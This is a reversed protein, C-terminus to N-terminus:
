QGRGQGYEAEDERAEIASIRDLDLAPDVLRGKVTFLRFAPAPHATREAFQSRLADEVVGSLTTGRQAALLRANQILPEPLDVTTRM